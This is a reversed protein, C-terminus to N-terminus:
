YALLATFSDGDGPLRNKSVTVSTCTLTSKLSFKPPASGSRHQITMTSAGFGCLNCGVDLDYRQLGWFTDGKLKNIQLHLKNILISLKTAFSVIYQLSHYLTVYWLCYIQINYFKCKSNSRIL